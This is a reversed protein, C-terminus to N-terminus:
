IFERELAKHALDLDVDVSTYLTRLAVDSAPTSDAMVMTSVLVPDKAKELWLDGDGYIERLRRAVEGILIEQAIETGEGGRDVVERKGHRFAQASYVKRRTKVVVREAREGLQSILGTAQCRFM